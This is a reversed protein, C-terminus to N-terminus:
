SEKLGATSVCPAMGAASIGKDGRHFSVFQVGCPTSPVPVLKFVM